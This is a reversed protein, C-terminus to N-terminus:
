NYEKDEHKNLRDRVEIYREIIGSLRLEQETMTLKFGNFYKSTWCLNDESAIVEPPLGLYYGRLVPIKHDITACNWDNRNVTKNGDYRYIKDGTYYCYGTFEINNRVKNTLKDVELCYKNYEEEDEPLCVTGRIYARIKFNDGSFPNTCNSGKSMEERHKPSQGANKYGYKKLMTAETNKVKRKIFAESKFYAEKSGYKNILFKEFESRFAFRKLSAKKSLNEGFILKNADAAYKELECLSCGNETAKEANEWGALECVLNIFNLWNEEKFKKIEELTM